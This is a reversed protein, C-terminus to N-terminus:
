DHTFFVSSEAPGQTVPYFSGLENKKKSLLTKMEPGFVVCVQEGFTELPYTVRRRSGHDIPSSSLDTVETKLERLKAWDKAASVVQYFTATCWRAGPLRVVHGVLDQYLKELQQRYASYALAPGPDPQDYSLKQEASLLRWDQGALTALEKQSCLPNLAKRKQRTMELFRFYNTLPKKVSVLPRAPFQPLREQKTRKACDTTARGVPEEQEDPQKRKRNM